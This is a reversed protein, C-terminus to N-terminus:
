YYETAFDGDTTWYSCAEVASVNRVGQVLLGLSSSTSSEAIGGDRGCCRGSLLPIM